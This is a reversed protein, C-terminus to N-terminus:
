KKQYMCPLLSLICVHTDNYVNLRTPPAPPIQATRNVCVPREVLVSEQEVPVSEQEHRTGARACNWCLARKHEARSHLFTTIFGPPSSHAHAAPLSLQAEEARRTEKGEMTDAHHGPLM